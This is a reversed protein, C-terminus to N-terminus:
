NSYKTTINIWLIIKSQTPVAWNSLRSFYDLLSKEYYISKLQFYNGHSCTKCRDIWQYLWLPTFKNLDTPHFSLVYLMCPSHCSIYLETFTLQNTAEGKILNFLSIIINYLHHVLWRFLFNINIYLRQRCAKDLFSLQGIYKTFESCSCSFCLKNEKM